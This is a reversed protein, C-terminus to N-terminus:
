KTEKPKPEQAVPIRKTFKNIGEIGQEDIDDYDVVVKNKNKALIKTLVFNRIKMFQYTLFSLTFPTLAITVLLGIVFLVIMSLISVSAPATIGFVVIFAAYAIATLLVFRFNNTLATNVIYKFEVRNYADKRSWSDSITNLINACFITNIVTVFVYGVVVFQDFKVQCAAALGLIILPMGFTGAIMPACSLWNFRIAGYLGSCLTAVIISVLALNLIDQNTSGFINQVLIDKGFVLGSVDGSMAKAIEFANAANTNFYWWQSDLDHRYSVYSLDKFWPQQFLDGDFKIAVCAQTQFMTTSTYGITLFLVIAVVLLGGVVAVAILAKKNTADIRKTSLTSYYQFELKTADLSSPVLSNNQTLLENARNSPKGFFVYKNVLYNNNFFLGHLAANLLFISIFTAFSGTILVIGLQNLSIPAIYTFCVGFILTIVSFDVIPLLSKRFTKKIMLQTDERSHLRRRMRECIALCAMFGVIAMTFMGFLLSMSIAMSSVTSILLTMSLAFLMCIWSMIGTTRYLVALIILLAVLFLIFGLSLIGIVNNGGFITENFSPQIYQYNYQEQYRNYVKQAGVTSGETIDSFDMDVLAVKNFGYNIQRNLFSEAETKTTQSYWFYSIKPTESETDNKYDDTIEKPMYEDLKDYTIIKQVYKTAFSANADFTGATTQDLYNFVDANIYKNNQEKSENYQSANKLHYANKYEEETQQRAEGNWAKDRYDQAFNAYASDKYINLYDDISEGNAWWNSLHYNAENYLGNINNVIYLRPQGWANQIAETKEEAESDKKADLLNKYIQSVSVEAKSDDVTFLVGNKGDKDVIVKTKNDEVDAVKPINFLDRFPIITFFPKDDKKADNIYWRYVITKENTNFGNEAFFSLYPDNDVKEDEQEETVVVKRQVKDLEFNANLYADYKDDPDTQEDDTYLEYSVDYSKQGRDKLWRSLKEACDQLTNRVDSETIAAKEADTYGALPDVKVHGTFSKTFDASETYNKSIHWISAVSGAIAGGAIVGSLVIPLVSLKSKKMGFNNSKTSKM